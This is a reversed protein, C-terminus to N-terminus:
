SGLIRGVAAMQEPTPTWSLDLEVIRDPYCLLYREQAEGGLVLQWGREAGWPAPDIPRHEEWDPDSAPFGYNHSFDLLMVEECWGYLAPVKVTVIRYSLEPETLADMMPEQRAEYRSLLISNSSRIEQCSYHPYDTDMLDQITLPIPDHYIRCPWGDADYVEYDGTGGSFPMQSLVGFVLGGCLLLTLLTTLVVTVAANGPASIGRKKMLKSLGLVAATIGLIGALILFVFLVLQSDQYSALMAGLALVMLGLGALQPKVTSRTELFNGDEAAKKARSRWRYYLILETATTILLLAFLTLMLLSSTSSLEGIPDNELRGFFLGIQMLGLLLNLFYTPLFSKKVSGHINELEIVPDTEIPIPNEARNCFIQLQANSAILEWGTHLCFEQFRLQKESPAPDFASAAPFYTVAFHLKAPQIRRFMWGFSGTKELMWGQAAQRELYEEIGTRDYFTFTLFRRKTQKM